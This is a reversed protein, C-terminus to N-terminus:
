SGYFPTRNQPNTVEFLDVNDLRRVHLRLEECLDLFEQRQEAWTEVEDVRKPFAARIRHSPFYHARGPPIAM